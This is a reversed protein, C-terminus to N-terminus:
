HLDFVVDYGHRIIDWCKYCEDCKGTCKFYYEPIRKDHSLWARSLQIRRPNQLGPWMSLIVSLNEPIEPFVRPFLDWRKTFMMFQTGPFKNALSLIGLFYSWDPIDGGVHWRFYGPSHDNLWCNIEDFYVDPGRRLYDDYNERWAKKVNPWRLYCRKNAYCDKFCPANKRCTIGPPLSINPVKGMKSNKESIHLTM